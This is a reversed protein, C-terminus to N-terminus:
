PKQGLAEVLRMACDGFHVPGVVVGREKLNFAIDDHASERCVLCYGRVRRRSSQM